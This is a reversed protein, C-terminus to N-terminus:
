IHCGGHALWFLRVPNHLINRGPEHCFNKFLLSYVPDICQMGVNNWQLGKLLTIATPSIISVRPNSYTGLWGPRAFSHLHTEVPPHIMSASLAGPIISLMWQFASVSIGQQTRDSGGWETSPQKLHRHKSQPGHMPRHMSIFISPDNDQLDCSM